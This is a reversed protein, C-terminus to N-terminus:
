DMPEGVVAQHSSMHLTIAAGQANGCRWLYTVHVHAPVVVLKCPMVALNNAESCPVSFSATSMLTHLSEVPSPCHPPPTHSQM